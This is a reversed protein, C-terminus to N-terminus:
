LNLSKRWMERDNRQALGQLELSGLAIALEHPTLGSKAGLTTLTQHRTSLADMARLEFPALAFEFAQQSGGLGLLDRFDAFSGILEAFGDRIIRNCGDSTSANIPGPIAGVPRGLATAHNVTNIAGSRHGAEVILTAKGLAAILRNRQLFRWRTPRAGPPLESLVAGLKSVERLLDSNSSPYFNDVGGAMVAFNRAGLNNASRHAAADIGFAGGSVVSHGIEHLEGVFDACVWLGYSSAIRSGVISVAQDLSTLDGRFWLGAPMALGLDSLKSPWEPSEPTAFRIGLTQAVRLSQDFKTESLRPKWREFANRMVPQLEGFREYALKAYDTELIQRAFFGEDKGAILWDVSKRAGLTLRVLGALEDGPEAIISWIASGQAEPSLSLPNALNPM